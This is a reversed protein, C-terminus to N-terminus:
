FENSRSFSFVQFYHLEVKHTSIGVKDFRIKLTNTNYKEM